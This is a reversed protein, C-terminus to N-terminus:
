DDEKRKKKSFGALGLLGLLSAGAIAWVSSQQESTQPLKATNANTKQGAASQGIITHGATTDDHGSLSGTASATTSVLDTGNSTTGSSANTDTTTATTKGGTDQGNNGSTTNGNDDPVVVPQGPTTTVDDGGPTTTGGNGPDSPNTTTGGGNDPTTPNATYVVTVTTDKVDSTAASGPYNGAVTTENATYGALTPSTVAGYTDKATAYSTGTVADTVTNWTIKQVVSPAATSGDAYQYNITRTTTTTGDIIEHNLYVTITKDMTSTVTYSVSYTGDGNNAIVLGDQDNALVYNAPVKFTYTVNEGVYTSQTTTDGVQAGNEADDVFTAVMSAAQAGYTVVIAKYPALALKAADDLTPTSGYGLGYQGIVSADTIGAALTETATVNGDADTTTMTTADDGDPTYTIVTGDNQTVVISKIDNGLYNTVNIDVGNADTGTPYTLDQDTTSFTHNADDQVTVTYAAEGDNITLTGAQVIQNDFVVSTNAAALEALGTASLAVTYEAYVPATTTDTTQTVTLDGSDASITYTGDGNNTWSSPATIGTPLTVVYSTPMSGTWTMTTDSITGQGATTSTDYVQVYKVYYSNSVIPIGAGAVGATDTTLTNYQAVSDPVIQYTKGTSSSTVTIPVVSATSYTTGPAGTKTAVGIQNNNSDELYYVDEITANVIVYQTGAQYASAYADSLGLANAVESVNNYFDLYGSDLQYAGQTQAVDDTVYLVDQDLSTNDGISGSTVTTNPDVTIEVPIKTTDTNANFPTVSAFKIQFVQRGNYDTEQTVTLGSYTVGDAALATELQSQLTAAPDSAVVANVEADNTGIVFGAPVIFYSTFNNLTTTSTTSLLPLDVELLTGTAFVWNTNTPPGPVTTQYNAMIVQTASSNAASVTVTADQVNIGTLQYDPNSTNLTTEAAATLSVSYTGATSTDVASTDFYSAPVTYVTTNTSTNTSFVTWDSPVTYSSANSISVLYTTPLSGGVTVNKNGIIVQDNATISFTGSTIADSSITYSPNVAQLDSIGQTSLTVIYSGIAQSTIEADIDNTATPVTYTGDGNDTWTSPAVLGDSLTVTYSTPDTDTTNDYPKSGGSVVIANSPATAANIVLSGVMINDASITTNPNAAQLRALGSDSLSVSYTGADVSSADTTLDTSDSAVEYQNATSTAYWDTPATLGDALTVTFATIASGDYTKTATSITADATADTTTASSATIKQSQGTAKYAAAASEKAAAIKEATTSGLDTETNASESSATNADSSSDNTIGDSNSNSNADATSSSSASSSDSTTTATSTSNASTSGTAASSVKSTAGLTASSSSQLQASESSSNDATTSDAASTTSDAHTTVNGGLFVATGLSLSVIGAFVWHKGAKYAKYHETLNGWVEKNRNNKSLM